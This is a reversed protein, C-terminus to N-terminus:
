VDGKRGATKIESCAFGFKSKAELRSDEDDFDPLEMMKSSSCSTFAVAM